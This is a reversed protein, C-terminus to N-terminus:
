MKKVKIKIARKGSLGASRFSTLRLFSSFSDSRCSKKKKASQKIAHPYGHNGFAIISLRLANKKAKKAKKAKKRKCTCLFHPALRARGDGSCHTAVSPWKLTRWAWLVPSTRFCGLEDRDAFLGLALGLIQVGQRQRGRKARLFYTLLFKRGLAQPLLSPLGALKM